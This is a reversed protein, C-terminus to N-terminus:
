STEKRVIGQTFYSREFLGRTGASESNPRLFISATRAERMFGPQQKDCGNRGRGEKKEEKQNSGEKRCVRSSPQGLLRTGDTNKGKKLESFSPEALSTPRRLTREGM